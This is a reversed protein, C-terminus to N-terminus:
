CHPSKPPGRIVDYHGHAITLSVTTMRDQDKQDGHHQKKSIEDVHRQLTTIRRHLTGNYISDM